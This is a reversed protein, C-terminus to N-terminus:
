GEPDIGHWAPVKVARHGPVGSLIVKRLSIDNATTIEHLIKQPNAITEVYYIGNPVSTIDFSQGAINGIYSDGWGIPLMERVWLATPSGCQGMFGNSSPQWVAQRLLLDVPDTPTICFGVKESRVALEKKSDLLRYQAFQQFHWHNHGQQSDFGMTGARAMGIVHGDRWFYQYAPMIPSGGQRFGQVDLPSNGGNWVTANFNLLDRDSEVATTMGWTPMAVLDPLADKSPIALDLANRSSPPAEGRLSQTRSSVQASGNVVTVEVDATADAAAIHLLRVFTPTITETVRYTGPPLQLSPAHYPELPDVAWDKEIGWVQALPFPDSACQLPYPTSPPANPTLREPDLSNPCFLTTVAARIMGGSDRVTLKLFDKLGLPVKPM